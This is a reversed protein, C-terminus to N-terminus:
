GLVNYLLNSSRRRHMGKWEEDKGAFTLYLELTPDQSGKLTEVGHVSALEFEKSSSKAAM